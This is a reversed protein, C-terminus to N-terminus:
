EFRFQTSGLQALVPAAPLVAAQWPQSCSSASCPCIFPSPQDQFWASSLLNKLGTRTSFHPQLFVLHRGSSGLALTPVSCAPCLEAAEQSGETYWACVARGGQGQQPCAPSPSICGRGPGVEWQSPPRACVCIRSLPHCLGPGASCPVARYQCPLLPM